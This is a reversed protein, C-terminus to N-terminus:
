IHNLLWFNRIYKEFDTICKVEYGWKELHNELIKAIMMDDEVILLKYM